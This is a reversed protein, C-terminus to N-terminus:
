RMYINEGYLWAGWVCKGMCINEGMFGHGMCMNEGYLWAGWVNGWVSTKGMFGHGMYTERYLHKRGYLWVGYM